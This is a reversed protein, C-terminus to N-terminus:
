LAVQSLAELACLLLQMEFAANVFQCLSVFLVKVSFFLCFAEM